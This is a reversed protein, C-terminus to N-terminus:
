PIAPWDNHPNTLRGLAIGGDPASGRLRRAFCGSRPPMRRRPEFELDLFRMLYESQEDSLNHLSQLVVIKFKLIADYPKRSANSNREELKEEGRGRHWYPLGGV